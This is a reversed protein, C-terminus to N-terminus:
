YNEAVEINLIEEIPVGNFLIINSKPM